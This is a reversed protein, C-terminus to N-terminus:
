AATSTMIEAQRRLEAARKACWAPVAALKRVDAVVRSRLSKDTQIQQMMEFFKKREVENM